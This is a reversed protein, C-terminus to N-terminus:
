DSFEISKNIVQMIRFCMSYQLMILKVYNFCQFRYFYYCAIDYQIKDLLM